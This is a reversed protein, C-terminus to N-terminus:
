RRLSVHVDFPITLINPVGHVLRGVEERGKHVFIVGQVARADPAAQRLASLGYLTSLVTENAPRDIPAIAVTPTERRDAFVGTLLGRRLEDAGSFPDPLTRSRHLEALSALQDLFGPLWYTPDVPVVRRPELPAPPEPRQPVEGTELMASTILHLDEPTARANFVGNRGQLTGGWHRVDKMFSIRPALDAIRVEGIIEPPGIDIRFPFVDGNKPPWLPTEERYPESLIRHVSRFEGGVAFLLLDGPRVAAIRNHYKAEVGWKGNRVGIEYNWPFENSVTCIYTRPMHSERLSLM